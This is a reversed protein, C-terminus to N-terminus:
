DVWLDISWGLIARGEYLRQIMTWGLGSSTLVMLLAVVHDRQHTFWPRTLHELIVILVGIALLRLLHFAVIPSLSFVAALWGGLLWLPHFFSPTQPESTFQNAFIWRGQRAQEINSYYAPTDASSAPNTALYLAGPPQNIWGALYPVSTALWTGLILLVILTSRKM